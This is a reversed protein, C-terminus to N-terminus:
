LGQLRTIWAQNAQSDQELDNIVTQILREKYVSANALESFADIGHQNFYLTANQDIIGEFVQHSDYVSMWELQQEFSETDIATYNQQVESWLEQDQQSYVLEFFELTRDLNQYSEALAYVAAYRTEPHETQELYQTVVRQPEIESLMGLIKNRTATTLSEIHQAQLFSADFIGDSANNLLDKLADDTLNELEGPSETLRQWLTQSQNSHANSSLPTHNSSHASTDAESVFQKPSSRNIDNVQEIDDPAAPELM